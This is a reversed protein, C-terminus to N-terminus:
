VMQYLIMRIPWPWRPIIIIIIIIGSLVFAVSRSSTRLIKGNRHMEARYNGGSFARASHMEACSAFRVASTRATFTGRM